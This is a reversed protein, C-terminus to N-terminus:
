TQVWEEYLEIEFIREGRMLDAQEHALQVGIEETVSIVPCEIHATHLIIDHQNDDINVM